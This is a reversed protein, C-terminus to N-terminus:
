AQGIIIKPLLFRRAGTDWTQGGTIIRLPRNRDLDICFLEDFIRYAQFSGGEKRKM